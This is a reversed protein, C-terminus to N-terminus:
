LASQPSLIQFFPLSTQSNKDNPLRSHSGADKTSFRPPSASLTGKAKRRRGLTYSFFESSITAEEKKLYVRFLQARGFPASLLPPAPPATEQRPDPFDRWVGRRSPKGKRALRQRRRSSTGGTRRRRTEQGQAFISRREPADSATIEGPASGGLTEWANGLRERM